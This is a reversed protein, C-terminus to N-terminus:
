TDLTKSYAFRRSRWRASATSPWTTFSVQKGATQEYVPWLTAGLAARNAAIEDVSVDRTDLDTNFPAPSHDTRCLTPYGVYRIRSLGSHELWSRVTELDPGPSLWVFFREIGASAFLDILRPISGSDMGADAGCLYVRNMNFSAVPAQREPDITVYCDGYPPGEFRKRVFSAPPCRGDLWQALRRMKLSLDITDVASGPTM